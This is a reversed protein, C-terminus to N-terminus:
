QCSKKKDRKPSGYLYHDHEQAWDEPAEVTGTLRSLTSWADSAEPEGKKETVTLVYPRNPELDVKGEPRFVKGDFVAEITKEM